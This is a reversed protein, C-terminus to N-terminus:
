RNKAYQKNAKPHVPVQLSKLIFELESASNTNVVVTINLRNLETFIQYQQELENFSYLESIIFSFANKLGNPKFLNFVKGSPSSEQIIKSLFEFNNTKRLTLKCGVPIGKKLRLLIHISNTKTLSGKQSSILELALLSSALPKIDLNKGWYNFNLIIKKLRPVNRTSKLYYKNIIDYQLTKLYFTELFQM